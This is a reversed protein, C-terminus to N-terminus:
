TKCLKLIGFESRPLQKRLIFMRLTSRTTLRIDTISRTTNTTKSWHIHNTTLRRTKWTKKPRPHHSKRKRKPQLRRKKKPQLKRKRKPQLRKRRKMKKRLKRKRLM